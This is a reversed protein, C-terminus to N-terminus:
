GLPHFQQVEEILGEMDNQQYSETSSIYRHGALYQVERLNYMKLWKTIVSARVQNANLVKPNFKRLQVMLRTMLNSIDTKGSASVLLKETPQQTVKPRIQLTYDYMDMVQYAELQMERSNSRVGGPVAVKGERLNIDGVELKGLEETRVGQYVLLGLMVKDRRGKLSDDEYQNYLQHLEHPELIHYLVKRRVGQVTIDAVPNTTVEGEQALHDYFHRIVTLHHRITRQSKGTAQCYKMFMLLDTYSVQEYELNEREMWQQYQSFVLMRSQISKATFQKSELYAKFSKRTSGRTLRHKLKPESTRQYDSQSM